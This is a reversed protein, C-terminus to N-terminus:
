EQQVQEVQVARREESKERLYMYPIGLSVLVLTFLVFTTLGRYAYDDWENFKPFRLIFVIFLTIMFSTIILIATRYEEIDYIDLIFDMM